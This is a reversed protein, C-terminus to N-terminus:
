YIGTNGLEVPEMNTEIVNEEDFTFTYKMSKELVVLSKGLTKFMFRNNRMMKFEVLWRYSATSDGLDEHGM